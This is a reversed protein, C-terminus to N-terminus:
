SVMAPFFLSFLKELISKFTCFGTKLKKGTIITNNENIVSIIQPIVGNINGPGQFTKLSAKFIEFHIFV